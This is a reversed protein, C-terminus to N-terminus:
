GLRGASGFVDPFAEIVDSGAVQRLPVMVFDRKAMLPHPVTLRDQCIRILGFLLIDIDIPRSHYIRKGDRSFEVKEQRGLRGEISKCLDLLMEPTVCSDVIVRAVCNLFNQKADFGWPETELIDSVMDVHVGPTSDLMSLASRLNCERDGENSGLGLYVTVCEPM